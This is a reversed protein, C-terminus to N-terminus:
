KNAARVATIAEDMQMGNKMMARVQRARAQIDRHILINTVKIM